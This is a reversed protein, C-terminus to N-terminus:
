PVTRGASIKVVPVGGKPGVTAPRAAARARTPSALELPAELVLTALVIKMEYLAFAAGLCRRAGGGFPLYEHASVSKADVFRAPRFRNAEPYLDERRHVLLLSAGVGVGEPLLYGGLSFPRLLRRSAIPALPHLRLTEACVADLLPLATIRAPDGDTPRLEDRLQGLLEPQRYLEDVAWALATATTEYGAVVMTFLQEVIEQEEMPAGEEDRAAVLLGLIDESPGGQRRAVIEDRLLQHVEALRRRFRAWPGIGGLERRLFQFMALLPSFSKFTDLISKQARTVRDGTNLGFVTRVIVELSIERFLDEVPFRRGAPRAAWRALTTERMAAGYARMRAGHFPPQMLKRARKHAAGHQLLISGAGLMPTMQEVNFPAFTDPDASFIARVGESSSTVVLPRPRLSVTFLDGYRRGLALVWGEPDRLYRLLGLVPSSTGPPLGPRALAVPQDNM